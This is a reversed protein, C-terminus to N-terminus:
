KWNLRGIESEINLWVSCHEFERTYTYGNRVAPGKPPGLRKTFVPLTQMWARNFQKGAADERVVYKDHPYFYSYKEAIVLFIATVYDLRDQVAALSEVGARAEDLGIGSSDTDLATGLGISLAVVKGQRAAKQACAIGKAMYDARSVGDVNHEFGELYSGDFHELYDLGGHELRARLINALVINDQRFAKNIRILLQEYGEKLEQAKEEGVRKGKAFYAHHLVKINADIFIGDISPDGLMQAADRMWWNQVEPLSIDFFRCKSRQNVVPYSGDSSQLYGGEITNLEESAASGTWDIVINKYYLIKANPNRQKVARAAKLTGEQVSGEATGQAKEFTILPYDALYALEEDTFDTRKYIHMYRPVHDWSFELSKTDMVSEEKRTSADPSVCSAMSGLVASMALTYLCQYKM